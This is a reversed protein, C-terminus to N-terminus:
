WLNFIYYFDPEFTHACLFYPCPILIVYYNNSVILDDVKKFKCNLCLAFFSSLFSVNPGRIRAAINLSPEADFGLFVCTSLAQDVQNFPESATDVGM